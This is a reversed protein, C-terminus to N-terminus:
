RARWTSAASAAAPGGGGDDGRQVAGVDRQDAAVRAEQRERAERDDGAVGDGRRRGPQRAAVYRLRSTGRVTAISTMGLKTSVSRKRAAGAGSARATAPAAPRDHVDRVEARELADVVDDRRRAGARRAARGAKRRTPSPGSRWADRGPARARGRRGVDCNRPSRTSRGPTRRSASRKRSGLSVSLKPRAASSAIDQPTGTIAERTPPRGSTTSSPSVPKRQGTPSTSAIAAAARAQEAVGVQVPAEREGGACRRLRAEARAPPRGSRPADVAPHEAAVSSGAALAGQGLGEEEVGRPGEEGRGRPLLGDGKEGLEYAKEGTARADKYNGKAALLQAKIWVNFWDEKLALSQDVYKLGTDYDKKSELMYRAANAYPRWTDDVASNINALAQEATQVEIPIALRLKEWELDLSAKDDTFDTFIYALRERIPAAQPTVQM